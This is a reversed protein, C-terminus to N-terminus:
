AAHRAEGLILAPWTERWGIVGDVDLGHEQQFMRVATETEAGFSGTLDLHYGRARLLSQAVAVPQGMHGGRLLPMREPMHALAAIAIRFRFAPTSPTSRAIREILEHRFPEMPFSPCEKGDDLEYHGVIRDITIDFRRRWREVIEFLKERQPRTRTDAARNNSDIGGVYVVALSDRNYGYAHAGMHETPDGDRDPDRGVEETGDLRVVSHYGIGNWGKRRHMADIEAAGIDLDPPTATCHVVIRTPQNM